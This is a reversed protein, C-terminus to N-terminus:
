SSQLRARARVGLGSRPTIRIRRQGSGPRRAELARLAARQAGHVRGRRRRAGSLSSPGRDGGAAAADPPGEGAVRRSCTLGPSIDVPGRLDCGVHRPGPAGGDGTRRGSPDKAFPRSQRVEERSSSCRATWGGYSGPGTPTSPADVRPRAALAARITSLEELAQRCDSCSASPTRCGFAGGGGVRMSICSSTVRVRRQCRTVDTGGRDRQRARARRAAPAGRRAAPAQGDGRCAGVGRRDGVAELGRHHRM